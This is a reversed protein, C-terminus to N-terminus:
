RWTRDASSTRPAPRGARGPRGRRMVPARPYVTARTGTCRIASVARWSHGCRIVSRGSPAGSSSGVSGSAAGASRAQAPVGAPAPARLRRRAQPQPRAPAPASGSAPARAPAPALARVQAPARARAPAQAQAPARAQAPAPASGSGSGLGLGVVLGLRDGRGRLCGAGSCGGLRRGRARRPGDLVGRGPDEHQRGHRDEDPDEGYPISAPFPPVNVPVGVGVGAGDTVGHVTWCRTAATPTRGREPLADADSGDTAGGDGLAAGDSTRRGSRSPRRWHRETRSRAAGLAARGLRRRAEGEQPDLRAAVMAASVTSAVAGGRARSSGTRPRCAARYVRGAM